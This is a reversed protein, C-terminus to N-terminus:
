MQGLDIALQPVLHVFTIFDFFHRSVCFVPNYLLQSQKVELPGLANIFNISLEADRNLPQLGDSDIVLGHVQDM